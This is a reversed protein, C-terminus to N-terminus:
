GNIVELLKTKFELLEMNTSKSEKEGMALEYGIEAGEVMLNKIVDPYTKLVETIEGGYMPKIIQFRKDIRNMAKEFLEQTKM